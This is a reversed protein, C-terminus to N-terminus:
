SKTTETVDFTTGRHKVTVEQGKVLIGQHPKSHADDFTVSYVKNPDDLSQGPFALRVAHEFAVVDHELDHKTGNVVVEYKERHDMASVYGRERGALM